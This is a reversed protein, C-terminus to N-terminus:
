AEFYTIEQLIRTEKVVVKREEPFVDGNQLMAVSGFSRATSLM